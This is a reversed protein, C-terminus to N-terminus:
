RPVLPGNGQQKIHVMEHGLQGTGDGNSNGPFTVHGTDLFASKDKKLRGKKALHRPPCQQKGQGHAATAKTTAMFFASCTHGTIQSVPQEAHAMSSGFLSVGIVTLLTLIGTYYTKQQNKM